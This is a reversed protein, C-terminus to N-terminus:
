RDILVTACNIVDQLIAQVEGEGSFGSGGLSINVVFNTAYMMGVDGYYKFPFEELSQEHKQVLIFSTEGTEWQIPEDPVNVAVLGFHTDYENQLREPDNSYLISLSVRNLAIEGMSGYEWQYQCGLRTPGAIASDVPLDSCTCDDDSFGQFETPPSPGEETTDLLELSGTEEEEDIVTITISSEWIEGGKDTISCTIKHIGADLESTTFEAKGSEISGVQDSEWRIDSIEVDRGTEPPKLNCRFTIPEGRLFTEGDSPRLIETQPIDQNSITACALTLIFLTVLVIIIKRNRHWKHINFTFM